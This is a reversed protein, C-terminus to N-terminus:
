NTLAVPEYGTPGLNSDKIAWWLLILRVGAEEFAAKGQFYHESASYLLVAKLFRLPTKAEM